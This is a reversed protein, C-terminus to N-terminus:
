TTVTLSLAGSAVTVQRGGDPETKERPTVGTTQVAISVASLLDVFLKVTVTRSLSFGTRLKGALMVTGVSGPLIVPVTLKVTVAVSLQETGVTEVRGSGPENGIPVVTTVLVAVSEEPM